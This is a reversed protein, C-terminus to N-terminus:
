ARDEPDSPATRGDRSGVPTHSQAPALHRADAGGTCARDHSCVVQVDGTAALDRLRSLNARAAAPDTTMVREYAALGLPMRPHDRRLQQHYLYADGAHLLWGSPAKIAVGCHGITHGRLPVLLIEPPLGDLDRVSQFGFWPEGGDMYTRWDRVGNWLAPRYRQRDIFSRRRHEAADREAALLHVRAEPFDEIGGAHDFDLHTVIIHRVDRSSFGLREVQRRATEEERLRANLVLVPWTFPLRRPTGIVDQLGYGTDVLVLGADTELLLVRTGIHALLGRSRGDFLAGGLPCHSGCDLHHIKM